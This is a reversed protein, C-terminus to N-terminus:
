GRGGARGFCSTERYVPLLILSSRDVAEAIRIRGMSFNEDSFSTAGL